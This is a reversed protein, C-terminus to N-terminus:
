RVKLGSKPNKKECINRYIHHLVMKSHQRYMIMSFHSPHTWSGVFYVHFMLFVLLINAFGSKSVSQICSYARNVFSIHIAFSSQLVVCNDKGSSLTGHSGVNRDNHHMNEIGLWIGPLLNLCCISYGKQGGKAFDDKSSRFIPWYPLVSTHIKRVKHHNKIVLSVPLTTM